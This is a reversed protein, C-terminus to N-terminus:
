NTQPHFLKDVPGLEDIYAQPGGARKAVRKPKIVKEAPRAKKAAVRVDDESAMLDELIKQFAIRKLEADKVSSVAKNALEVLKAYDKDEGM